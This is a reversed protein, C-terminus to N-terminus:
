PLFLSPVCACLYYYGMECTLTQPGFLGLAKGLTMTCLGEVSALEPM